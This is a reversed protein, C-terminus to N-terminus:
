TRCRIKRTCYLVGPIFPIHHKKMRWFPWNELILPLSIMLQAQGSMKAVYMFGADAILVPRCAMEDVAFLVRNHWDIDPQVYHLAITHPTNKNLHQSLHEYLRQSGDGRGIDGVLHAFPSPRGLTEGAKIAAAILAPTGRNVTARRGQICLVDNELSVEGTLLPFDRNPITGVVALM